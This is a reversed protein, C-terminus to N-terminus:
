SYKWNRKKGKLWELTTAIRRQRTEERKADTIWEIYEHRCSPSFADFAVKAKSNAALAKKFDAPVAVPKRPKPAPLKVSDINLQAAERIYECLINDAPLQSVDTLKETNMFSRSQRRFLGHPDSMLSVKHFGFHAHAKFAAM